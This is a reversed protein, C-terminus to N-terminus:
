ASATYHGGQMHMTLLQGLTVQISWDLCLSSFLLTFTSGEEFLGPCRIDQVGASTLAPGSFASPGNQIQKGWSMEWFIM